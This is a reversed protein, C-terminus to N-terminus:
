ASDESPPEGGAREASARQREDLERLLLRLSPYGLALTQLGWGAATPLGARKAKTFAFAAEGVHAALAALAIGIVVSRPFLPVHATFAAYATPSFALAFTLALGPLIALWWGWHPRRVRPMTAALERVWPECEAMGETPGFRPRWGLDREAAAISFWHDHVLKFLEMRTLFPHVGVFSLWEAGAAAVRLPWAPFGITPPKKGLAVATPAFFDFYSMPAGDSIFYARGNARGDPGLALAARLHADVLDDIYVNDAKGHGGGVRVVYLGRLIERVVRPFHTPEGPGYIGGPRLATTFFGESSAELVLKEAAAKSETYLDLPPLSAYPVSEDAGAYARDVVVNVSSTLVLRTAGAARAAELVRQTGGVNVDRVFAREREPARTRTDIIAACHFVTDIGVCARSVAEDDRVDGIQVDVADPLAVDIRRDFARVPVGGRALAAVLNRGLYGGAGTVLCRGLAQLDLM